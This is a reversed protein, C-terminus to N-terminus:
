YSVDVVLMITVVIHQVTLSTKIITAVVSFAPAVVEPLDILRNEQYCKLAILM